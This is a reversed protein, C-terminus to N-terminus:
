SIRDIGREIAPIDLAPASRGLFHAFKYREGGIREGFLPCERRGPFEFADSGFVCEWLGFSNALSELRSFLNTVGERRFITLPTHFQLSFLSAHYSDTIVWAADDILGLFEHPGADIEDERSKCSLRIVRAGLHRSLDKIYAEQSPSTKGLLYTLIYPEGAGLPSVSIQRWADTTLMLTPDIVVEADQGSLQKVLGVANEERVSVAQFGKLGQALKHRAYPSSVKAVGISPAICLRQEPRAFELFSWRYDNIYYPNWVQDSGVAFFDFKDALTSLNTGVAVHHIRQNFAAFSERREPSMQDEPNAAAKPRLLKWALLRASSALSMGSYHLTQAECGMGEFIAQVAFNQLRNGFNFNGELTVIGVKMTGRQKTSMAPEIEGM